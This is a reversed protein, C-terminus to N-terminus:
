SKEPNRGGPSREGLLKLLRRPYDTFIGDVGWDLFRTMEEEENITWVHIQLGKRHIAKIFGPTIIRRGEHFEPLPLSEGQFRRKLGLLRLRYLIYTLNLERRPLSTATGPLAQRIRRIPPDLFSAALVREEAGTKRIIRIFEEALEPTETKLDLNFRAEPLERLLETLRVMRIGQGRFPFTEGNDQTFSYGADLKKLYDWSMDRIKGAGDTNRDVTEDHWVVCVGDRTLHLDTEIVDVGMEWASRFSPMTNEPYASSDGRHALVTSPKRFFSKTTKKM